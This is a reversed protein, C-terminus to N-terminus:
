IPFVRCLSLGKRARFPAIGPAVLMFVAARSVALGLMSSGECCRRCDGALPFIRAAPFQAFDMYGLFLNKNRGAFFKGYLADTMLCFPSISM